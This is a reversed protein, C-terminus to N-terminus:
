YESEVRGTLLYIPTHATINYYYQLIVYGITRIDLIWDSISNRM